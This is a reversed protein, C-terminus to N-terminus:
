WGSLYDIGLKCVMSNYFLEKNINLLNVMTSDEDWMDILEKNQERSFGCEKVKAKFFRCNLIGDTYKKFELSRGYFDWGTIIRLDRKDWCNLLYTVSKKNRYTKILTKLMKKRGFIPYNPVDGYCRCYVKGDKLFIHYSGVENM